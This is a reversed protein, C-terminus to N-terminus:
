QKLPELVHFGKSLVNKELFVLVVVKDNRLGVSKQVSFVSYNKMEDFCAIM